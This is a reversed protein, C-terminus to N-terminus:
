SKITRRYDIYRYGEQVTSMRFNGSEDELILFPQGIYSPKGEKFIPEYCKYGNWKGVYKANEYGHEVAFEKVNM